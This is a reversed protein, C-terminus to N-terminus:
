GFALSLIREINFMSDNAAHKIFDYEGQMNIHHWAVVSGRLMAALMNKREELDSNNALLQSLYLYNWLVIANQILTKCAVMIEQEEKVGNKFEGDNAFFVARSFKNSSEVKNLQKEIRQRLEVDDLYSLIFISKIIRGFEKLAKYLPHDKAYSSLRKFLQSASSHKLKITAIFRLIDDWCSEILKLNITGSPLIKYGRNEYTKKNSFSYISQDAINKIRPAFATKIFHSACFVLETYGHTDTSHIDSKVVENQVLGDIVYAAERESSSIVVSHFLLQREDIFTYITVGKGKGFYKFSYSAFISDVAVNVKSGDSGTHIEGPKKRYANALSLKNTVALIKNNAQQINKLSFCWNVMNKLTDENVGVSINAIRNIGINCGKGMIGAFITQAKPNMKKNKVSHHRFKDTFETVKNIDSLVQLIPVFGSQGLLASVYESEDSETKPTSIKFKSKEDITLFQNGGNLIRENVTRYKQDLQQKLASIATNFDSFDTLGAQELLENKRSNWYADDILYEHIAKYRYSYRLNLKGSKIDDFIHTFLLIKYLSVRLKNKPYVAEKEEINLFDMPPANNVEGDTFNFHKIAEIIPASSTDSNFELVKIISSVRRQLKLSMMELADFYTQNNGINELSNELELEEQTNVKRPLLHYYKILEDIQLVKGSDTYVPSRLVETISEILIRSNKNNESLSKIAKNRLPRNEKEIEEQKKKASNIASKTSKLFVDILLDHRFYFQHKIYCLLHLYLKNKDSFQKLQFATSKQVWTAFYETAHDAMGLEDIISRFEFFYDKFIKFTTINEQIDAPRLSQNIKKIITIAPRQLKNKNDSKEGSVVKDLIERHFRTLKKSLIDVLRSEFQNYSDTIILSMSNYSPLEIKNQWCFDIASLFVNRPSFQRQVLWTVHAIIKGKQTDDFPHWNLLTFIRKRHKIPTENKYNSIDINEAVIGITKAAYSIDQQRFQDVAFFKGNAKFYALQVAFGIKNSATRLSQILEMEENSMSFYLSREDTNFVPPSDYRRKENPNLIVLKTM